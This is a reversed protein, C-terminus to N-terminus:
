TTAKKVKKAAMNAKVMVRGELKRDRSSSRVTFTRPGSPTVWDHQATSWYQLQRPAIHLIVQKSEGAALHVRDFGALVRDAFQVGVPTHAPKDLYVQAVEDGAASGTNRINFSVDFGGDAAAASRVGSYEFTTYSLGFGFPFLPEIKEHEFWRYGVLVGESFTTKGNIGEISREPFAPDGAPTDEIRKAWTFPLRGAPNAQGLLLKATAPGGEDGPWWMQLVAKVQALWPMAVPQSVNLVVITNPNVTAVDRILQDQDGPLAFVPRTRSWAFVIATKAQRAADIAARYNDKQQRPTVWSARVQIPSNSSDPNVEITIRHPGAALEMAARINDLGDTTPFINDQGAQTVEGHIWNYWIKDVVQDDIKLMGHCGLLQLHIRYKGSEPANLTGSWVISQSAPLANGGALTFNVSPDITVANEQFVRRELGPEGFHSLYQAPIAMGEMDDAPAYTVHAASGALQRLSALPGVELAPLGVAKEGTLGVAVTQAAGPGIMALSGLDAAKLPLAAGDNKLLVAADIATKEVIKVDETNDSPTVELKNKGDLFGFRDMEFLVRGAASTITDESVTGAAVLKKLDTTPWPENSSQWPKQAPEEPLGTASLAPGESRGGNEAKRKPGNVFYMPGMFPVPLPGSMEMDLGANIFGAAHTAGWDSTVFGQFHNEGKLMTKLNDPNGCSYPGNIKNYSCMISSVGAKVVAAFPALYVEHLTQDDVFVNTADTDYAIFHKAQSMVGQGQIGEVEAAGLEGTLFPDEGFTNYGRGYAYDRDINIFPQLAVSIGHSRAERGIVAGNDRADQRSFTAAVGMTATPAISPVRTLVGPPGDAFRMPPIGLRPIGPLYGAEGQYTAAPEGTGHIMTIKEDLTMQNLLRDVRADGSSAAQQASSSAICLGFIILAIELIGAVSSSKVM